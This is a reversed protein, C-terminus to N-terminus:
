KSRTTYREFLSLRVRKQPSLDMLKEYREVAERAAEPSAFNVDERAEIEIFRDLEKMNPNYTIYYALLVEQFFFVRATKWIHFDYKLGHMKSFTTMVEFSPIEHLPLNVEIRIINNNDTHKVKSTLEPKIHSLRWRMFRQDDSFYYDHSGFDSVSIPNLSHAVDSFADFGIDDAKYKMEVEFLTTM